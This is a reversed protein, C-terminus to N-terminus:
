ELCGTLSLYFFFFLHFKDFFFHLLVQMVLMIEEFMCDDIRMIVVAHYLVKQFGFYEFICDYKKPVVFCDALKPQM